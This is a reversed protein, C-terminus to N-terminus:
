YWAEEKRRQLNYGYGRLFFQPQSSRFELQGTRMFMATRLALAPPFPPTVPIVCCLTRVMETQGRVNYRARVPPAAHLLSEAVLSVELM